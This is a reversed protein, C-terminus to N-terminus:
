MAGTDPMKVINERLIEIPARRPMYEQIIALRKTKKVVTTVIDNIINPKPEQYPPVPLPVPVYTAGPPLTGYVVPVVVPLGITIVATGYVTSLGSASGSATNIYM